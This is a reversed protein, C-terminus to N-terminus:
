RLVQTLARVKYTLLGNLVSGVVTLHPVWVSNVIVIFFQVNYDRFITNPGPSIAGLTFGSQEEQPGPNPEQM